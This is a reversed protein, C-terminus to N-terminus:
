KSGHTANLADVIKEADEANYVFALPDHQGRKNDIVVWGYCIEDADEYSSGGSCDSCECSDCGTTRTIMTVLSHAEFKYRLRKTSKTLVPSFLIDAM